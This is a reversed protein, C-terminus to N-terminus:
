TNWVRDCAARTIRANRPLTQRVQRVVELCHAQDRLRYHNHEVVTPRGGVTTVVLLTLM